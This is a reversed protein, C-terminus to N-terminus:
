VTFGGDVHITAGTIYPANCLHAITAAIEQPDAYRNLATLSAITEAAPGDSPNADTNTPGPVVLNATIGQPGLDRALAKTLGTAASKTMAYLSLGPFPTRDVVNSGITIIRGGPEMHRAAAQAAVFPARVNVAIAHDLAELTVEDLPAMSFDAANNVLVDLRGFASVATEVANTVAAPDAADSQVALARQGTKEVLAATEGARDANSEYTLVIDMGAEALAVATAAGIGRGGGTILAVRASSEDVRGATENMRDTNENM